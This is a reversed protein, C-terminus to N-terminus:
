NIQHMIVRRNHYNTKAFFFFFKKEIHKIMEKMIYVTGLMMLIIRLWENIEVTQTNM